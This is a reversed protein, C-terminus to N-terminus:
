NKSVLAKKKNLLFSPRGSVDINVLSGIVQMERQDAVNLYLYEAVLDQLLTFSYANKQFMRALSEIDEKPPTKFHDLKLAVDILRVAADNEGSETRIAKYTLSLDESGLNLSLRKVISFAVGRSLSILEEDVARKLDDESVLDYEDKAQAAQRQEIIGALQVRFPEVNEAIVVLVRKMVRMALGYSAFALEKKPEKRLVGTFNRLVHGLIRLNKFAISIKQVDGLTQEYRIRDGTQLSVDANSSDEDQQRRFEERNEQPDVSEILKKPTEKLLDNIFSVDSTFNCPQLEKYISSANGIIQDIISPDKTLFIFFIIINSYDEFYVRDAITRLQERLADGEIALNEQFYKAVFYCYCARYRFRISDADLSIIQAQSLEDLLKELDVIQGYESCYCDHIGQMEGLSVRHNDTSFIHFALRSIYTYKMGLDTLKDSNEGLRRTILVEYLHGYSGLNASGGQSEDAQLLILVVFPFSPLFNRELISNIRNESQKVLYAFDEERMTYEQGIQHWTEILKGRLRLGFEPLSCKAFRGFVNESNEIDTMQELSLLDSALCAIRGFTPELHQMLRARGKENFRVKQWNDIILAKNSPDMQLFEELHQNGYQEEFKKRILARINKAGVTDFCEGDILLPVLGTESLYHRYFTKALATKGSGEEGLIMIRDSNALFAMCETSPVFRTEESVSKDLRLTPAVFFDYLHLDKKHPHTYLSGPDELWRAFQASNRFKAGSAHARRELPLNAPSGPSYLNGNWTCIRITVQKGVLDVEVVNFASQAPPDHLASGEVYCTQQESTRLKIFTDPLHEHGTFILDCGSEVFNRLRRNNSPEFWHLPHHLLSVVLDGDSPTSSPMMQDPFALTGPKENRTSTFATNFLNFDIRLGGLCVRQKRFLRQEFDLHVGTRGQVFSFFADQQELLKKALTGTASVSSIDEKVRANAVDRLEDNSGGLNVDHNGPVFIEFVKVGDKEFLRILETCFKDAHAYQEKQGSYAIDGTYLLGVVEPSEACSRVAARIKAPRGLVENRSDLIHIDSLQVLVITADKATQTPEM